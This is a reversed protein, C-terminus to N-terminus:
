CDRQSREKLRSDNTKMKTEVVENFKKAKLSTPGIAEVIVAVPPVVVTEILLFLETKVTVLAMSWVMLKGSGVWALPIFNDKILPATPVPTVVILQPVQQPTILM